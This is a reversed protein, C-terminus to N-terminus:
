NNQGPLGNPFAIAIDATPFTKEMRRRAENVDRKLAVRLKEELDPRENLSEDKEELEEIVKEWARDFRPYARRALELNIEEGLGGDIQWLGETDLKVTVMLPSRLRMILKRAVPGVEDFLWAAENKNRAHCVSVTGDAWRYAYTAM